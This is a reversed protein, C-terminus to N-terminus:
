YETNKRIFLYILISLLCNVVLAIMPSYVYENTFASLWMHPYFFPIFEELVPMKDMLTFIFFICAYFPITCSFKLIEIKPESLVDRDEKDIFIMVKFVIFMIGAIISQLMLDNMFDPLISYIFTGLLLHIFSTIIVTAITLGLISFVFKISDFFTYISKGIKSITKWINDLIVESRSPEKRISEVSALKFKTENYLALPFSTELIRNNFEDLILLIKNWNEDTYKAKYYVENFDNNLKNKLEESTYDYLNKNIDM